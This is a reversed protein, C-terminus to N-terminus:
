PSSENRRTKPTGAPLWPLWMGALQGCAALAAACQGATTVDLFRQFCKPPRSVGPTVANSVAFAQM